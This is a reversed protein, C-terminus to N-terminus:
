YNLTGGWFRDCATCAGMRGNFAFQTGSAITTSGSPLVFNQSGPANWQSTNTFQTGSTNRLGLRTYTGTNDTLNLNIPGTFTHTRFTSYQVLSGGTNLEGSVQVSNASAMGPTGLILALAAAGGLLVHRSRM